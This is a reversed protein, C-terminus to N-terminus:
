SIVSGTADLERVVRAPVGLALSNSPIDRTVLSGAGIVSGEGITVGGLITVNAGIWVFDDVIIPGRSMVPRRGKRDSILRHGSTAFITRFGIDCCRGITIASNADFYVERNIYCHAGITVPDRRSKLMLGPSITTGEGMRYGCLRLLAGRSRDGIRGAGLGDLVRLLLATLLVDIEELIKNV